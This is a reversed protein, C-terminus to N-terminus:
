FQANESSQKWSKTQVCNKEESFAFCLPLIGLINRSRGVKSTQNSAQAGGMLGVLEQNILAGSFPQDVTAVGPSNM